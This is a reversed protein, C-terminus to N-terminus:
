IMKMKNSEKPKIVLLHSQSPLPHSCLSEPHILAQLHSHYQLLSLNIMQSQSIM